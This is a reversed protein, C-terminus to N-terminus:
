LDATPRGASQEGAHRDGAEYAFLSGPENGVHEGGDHQGGNLENGDHEDGDTGSEACPHLCPTHTCSQAHKM